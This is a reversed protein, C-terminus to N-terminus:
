SKRALCEAPTRVAVESFKKAIGKDFTVVEWGEAHALACLLADGFDSNKIRYFQLAEVVWRYDPADVNPIALLSILKPAIEAPSLDYISELVYVTEQITSTPVVLKVAGNQAARFLDAAAASQTKDDGTLYRVLVSADVAVAAAM